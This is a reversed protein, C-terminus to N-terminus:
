MIWGGGLVCNDQYFVACQGPTVGYQPEDFVVEVRGQPGLNLTAMAQHHRYRIRCDVRLNEVQQPVSWVVDRVQLNSCALNPKEGVIVKQQAADIAVVYLPESWGIGLGKRQGITYRHSGHHHGLVQGNVHCIEGHCPWEGQQELFRIYDNDTVFCIDQSESKAQSSLHFSEALNRVEPKSLTGLPFLVRGLQQQNLTFLFYSQDKHPDEGRCLRSLEGCHDIRAYHGTALFDVGLADAVQLLYGFKFQQNCRVCPNPTHGIRYEQCFDAMISEAFPQRCDLSHFPINLEDAVRQADRNGQQAQEGPLLLMHAGIVDYGEKLLLAAMVSSDVGGSLAALVKKKAM